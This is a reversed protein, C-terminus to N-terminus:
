LQDTSIVANNFNLVHDDQIFNIFGVTPKLKLLQSLFLLSQEM